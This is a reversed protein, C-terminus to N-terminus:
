EIIRDARALVSPPITLGLAKATRANIVLEFVTPQEVPLDAPNAGKLIRDVYSAGRRVLAVENAGYAMLGGVDVFRRQWAVTPLKATISLEAIRKFNEVHLGSGLMTVAGASERRIAAFGGDLDESGKLAIPQLRIGLVRAARRHKQRWSM